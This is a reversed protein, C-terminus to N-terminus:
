DRSGHGSSGGVRLDVEAAPVTFDDGGGGGLWKRIEEPETWARFIRERLVPFTRQISVATERAAQGRAM